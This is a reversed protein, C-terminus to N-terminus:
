RAWAGIKKNATGATRVSSAASAIVVYTSLVQNEEM